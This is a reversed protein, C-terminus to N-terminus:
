LFPNNKSVKVTEKLAQNIDKKNIKYIKDISINKEEFIYAEGIDKLSADSMPETNKKFSYVKLEGNEIVINSPEAYYVVEGLDEIVSIKTWYNLVNIRESVSGEIDCKYQERAQKNNYISKRFEFIELLKEESIDQIKKEEKGFEEFSFILEGQANRKFSFVEEKGNKLVFGNIKADKYDKKTAISNEIKRLFSKFIKDIYEFVRKERIESPVSLLFSKIKDNDPFSEHPFYDVSGGFERPTEKILWNSIYPENVKDVSSKEDIKFVEYLNLCDFERGKDECLLKWIYAKKESDLSSLLEKKMEKISRQYNKLRADERKEQAEKEEKLDSLRDNLRENDRFVGKIYKLHHKLMHRDLYLKDYESAIEILESEKHKKLKKIIESPKEKSLTDHTIKPAKSSLKDAKLAFAKKYKARLDKLLTDYDKKNDNVLREIDEFMPFELLGEVIDVKLIDSGLIDNIYIFTHFAWGDSDLTKHKIKKNNDDLLTLTIDKFSKRDYKLPTLSPM